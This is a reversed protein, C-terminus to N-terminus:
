CTEKKCISENYTLYNGECCIKPDEDSGDSCDPELDLHNGWKRAGDCLYGLPICNGNNCKFETESCSTLIRHLNM